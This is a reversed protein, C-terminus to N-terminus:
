HEEFVEIIMLSLSRHTAAGVPVGCAGTHNYQNQFVAVQKAIHFGLAEGGRNQLRFKTNQHAKLL